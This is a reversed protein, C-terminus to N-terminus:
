CNKKGDRLDWIGILGNYCGGGVMDAIKNNYM